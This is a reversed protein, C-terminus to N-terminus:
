CCFLVFHVEDGFLRVFFVRGGGLLDVNPDFFSSVSQHKSM